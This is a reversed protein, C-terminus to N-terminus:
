VIGVSRCLYDFVLLTFDKFVGVEDFVIVNVITTHCCMVPKLGWRFMPCVLMISEDRRKKKKEETCL